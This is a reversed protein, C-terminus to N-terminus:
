RRNGSARKSAIAVVNGGNRLADLYDAWAQMMEHREPMYQARNYAARVKNREAHALQREIVDPPWGMENLRTSALARFGHATMTDGDYGLRRLAASVTNESMPRDATRLSPFVYRRHGTLPQLDRLVTIAQSPLPVVHGERMKMKGAPIRWVKGAFDIEAWEMARLEGPRVFLLPSLKLAAATVPQGIYGHLARMLEAVKAPDTIAPHSRSVVPDLAGRLDLTPDRDARGTAIAFRFVQSVKARARHATENTGRAEIKRLAALLEPATIDRMPRHDLVSVLGLLWEAKAITIDALAARRSKLWEAKVIGFTEASQVRNRLRQERRQASPDVGRRLLARADACLERAAAVSVEPFVGLALRKEKGGFRFKWRWYKAGTPMVELYMGSGDFIRYAKDSPAANKFVKSDVTM